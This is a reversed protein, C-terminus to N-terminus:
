RLFQCKKFLFFYDSILNDFIFLKPFMTKFLSQTLYHHISIFYRIIMDGGPHLMYKEDSKLEKGNHYWRVIPSSRVSPKYRCHFVTTDGFALITSQQLHVNIVPVITWIPVKVNTSVLNPSLFSM